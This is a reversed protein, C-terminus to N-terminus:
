PPIVILRTMLVLTEASFAYRFRLLLWLMILSAISFSELPRRMVAERDFRVSASRAVSTVEIVCACIRVRLLVGAQAPGRIVVDHCPNAAWASALLSVQFEVVAVDELEVTTAVPLVLAWDPENVVKETTLTAVPSSERM